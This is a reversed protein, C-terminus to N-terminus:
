TASPRAPRRRCRGRARRRVLHPELLVSRRSVTIACHSCSRAESCSVVATGASVQSPWLTRRVRRASPPSCTTTQDSRGSVAADIQCRQAPGGTVVVVAAAPSSAACGATGPCRSRGAARASRGRATAPRSRGPCRRSWSGTSRRRRRGGAGRPRCRARMARARWASGLPTRRTRAKAGPLPRVAVQHAVRQM